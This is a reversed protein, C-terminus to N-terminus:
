KRGNVHLAPSLYVLNAGGSRMVIMSFPSDGSPYLAVILGREEDLAIDIAECARRMTM